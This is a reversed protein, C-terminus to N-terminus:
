IETQFIYMNNLILNLLPQMLVTVHLPSLSFFISISSFSQNFFISAIIITVDIHKVTMCSVCVPSLYSSLPLCVHNYLPLCSSSASVTQSYRHSVSFSPRRCGGWREWLGCVTHVRTSFSLCPFCSSFYASVSFQNKNFWHPNLGWINLSHSHLHKWKPFYLIPTSTYIIFQINYFLTSTSWLWLCPSPSYQLNSAIPQFWAISMHHFSTKVACGRRTNNFYSWTLWVM